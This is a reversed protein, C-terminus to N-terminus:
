SNGIRQSGDRDARNLPDLRDAYQNAWQLWQFLDSEPSLEMGKKSAADKVAALYSRIRESSHWADVNRMLSQIKAEEEYRRKREEEERRKCEVWEQHRRETEIKHSRKNLAVKILGVFFKNLCAELKQKKGDSWKKRISRSTTDKICLILNGSPCYDYEPRMPWSYIDTGLNKPQDASKRITKLLVEEISIELQEGLVSLSTCGKPAPMVTIKIKRSELALILANMIKLARDLTNRGVHISLCKKARPKLLGNADRKANRLSRQARAVLPHLTQMDPSVLIRNESRMEFDIMKTAEAYQNEDIPLIEAQYIIASQTEGTLLPRLPPIRVNYGAWKQQWYGVGPLPVRLKRCIKALGVDSIGYEKAVQSVPKAWVKKYLEERDVEIRSM